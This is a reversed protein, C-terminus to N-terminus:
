RMGPPPGDDGVDDDETEVDLGVEERRRELSRIQRLYYITGGIAAIALVGAMGGFLLVDRALYYRVVIPGREVEDWYIRMVDDEVTSTTSSPSVQSLLPIGVRARPPLTVQHSHGEVFLPTSFRKGTPRDATFAVQGGDAPLWLNTHSRTNNASLTSRNATVVTGNPFRFKLAAITLPNESGLEDRRHVELKSRNEVAITARFSNRSVNYNTDADSEWEYTANESLDAESPQGPGLVSSCGSLAALVALLGVAVLWRRRM